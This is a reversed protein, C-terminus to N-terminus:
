LHLDHKLSELTKDGIFTTQLFDKYFEEGLKKAGELCINLYELQNKSSFQFDHGEYHLVRFFLAKHTQKRGSEEIEVRVIEYNKERELLQKLREESISFCIGNIYENWESKEANLEACAVSTKECFYTSSPINFVRVFGALKAPFINKAEPITTELFIKNIFSAYGFILM